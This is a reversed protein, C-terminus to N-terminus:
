AADTPIAQIVQIGKKQSTCVHHAKVKVNQQHAPVLEFKKKVLNNHARIVKNYAEQGSIIDYLTLPLKM